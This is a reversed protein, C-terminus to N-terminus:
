RPGGNATKQPESDADTMTPIDDEAAGSRDVTAAYVDHLALKFPRNFMPTGCDILQILFGIGCCQWLLTALGM